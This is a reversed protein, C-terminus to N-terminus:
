GRAEDILNFATSFKSVREKLAKNEILTKMFKQAMEPINGKSSWQAPTGDNVGLREALEKQTIGLEKCTQKVINPPPTSSSVFSIWAPIDEGNEDKHGEWSSEFVRDPNIILGDYIEVQLSQPNHKNDTYVQVIDKSSLLTDPLVQTIVKEVDEVNFYGDNENRAIYPARGFLLGVEVM